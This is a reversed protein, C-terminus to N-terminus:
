EQKEKNCPSNEPQYDIYVTEIENGEEDTTIPAVFEKTQLKRVIEEHTNNELFEIEEATLTGIMVQVVNKSPEERQIEEESEHSSQIEEEQKIEDVSSKNNKPVFPNNPDGNNIIKTYSGEQINGEPDKYGVVPDITPLVVVQRGNKEYIGHKEDEPGEIKVYGKLDNGDSIDSVSASKQSSIKGIPDNKEEVSEDDYEQIPDTTRKADSIKSLNQELEDEQSVSSQQLSSAVTQGEIKHNKVKGNYVRGKRQKYKDEFKIDTKQVENSCLKSVEEMTLVLKSFFEMQKQLSLKYKKVEQPDQSHSLKYKYVFENISYRQHDFDFDSELIETTIFEPFALTEQAVKPEYFASAMNLVKFLYYLKTHEEKQQFPIGKIHDFFKMFSEVNNM